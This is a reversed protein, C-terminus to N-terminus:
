ATIQDRILGMKKGDDIGKRFASSDIKRNRIFKKRLYPYYESVAKDVEEQKVLVLAKTTETRIEERVKTFMESLRSNIALVVGEGYSMREKEKKFQKSSMLTKIRILNFYWLTMELDSKTGVFMIKSNNYDIVPQTGFTYGVCTALKSVWPTKSIDSLTAGQRGINSVEGKPSVDSLSLGNEEAIQAAKRLAADAEASQDNNSGLALLKQIKDIIKPDITTM